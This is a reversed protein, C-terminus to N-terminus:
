GRMGYLLAIGGVYALMVLLSDLGVRGVRCNRRTVLATLYIGALLAGLLAALASFHGVMALVPGDLVLLDVVGILAMNFFNTGLVHSFAMEHRGLRVAELTTSLEPLSNTAALFLVGVFGAGLATQEGIADGSVAVVTGGVLVVLAAVAARAALNRPRPEDSELMDRPGSDAAREDADPVGFRHMVFFSLVAGVLVVMSWVGVPWGRPEGIVIGLATLTLLLVLLGAAIRIVRLDCEASLIVDRVSADAVALLTIQLASSGLANNVALDVSGILASSLTTAFEPLSTIGGLMLAGIFAHGLGTEEAVVDAYRALRSGALWVLAAGGLFLLLVLWLPLASFDFM